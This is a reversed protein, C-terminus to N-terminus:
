VRFACWRQLILNRKVRTWGSQRRLFSVFRWIFGPFGHVHFNPLLIQLRRRTYCGSCLFSTPVAHRLGQEGQINVANDASNWYEDAPYHGGRRCLSRPTGLQGEHSRLWALFTPSFRMGAHRCANCTDVTCCCSPPNHARQPIQRNRQRLM